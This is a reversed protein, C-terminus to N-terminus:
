PLVGLLFLKGRIMLLILISELLVVSISLSLKSVPSMAAGKDTNTPVLLMKDRLSEIEAVRKNKFSRLVPFEKEFLESSFTSDQGNCYLLPCFFIIYISCTRLFLHM